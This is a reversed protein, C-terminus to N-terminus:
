IRADSAFIADAIARAVEVNVANDLARFAGAKTGPIHKLDGMSQPLYYERETM